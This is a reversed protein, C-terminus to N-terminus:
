YSGGLGDERREEVVERVVRTPADPDASDETRTVVREDRVGRRAFVIMAAGALLLIVGVVKLDVSGLNDKVAFALIAGVVMVAIGAGM